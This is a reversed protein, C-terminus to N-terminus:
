ESAGWAPAVGDPKTAPKAKSKPAPKSTSEEGVEDLKVIEPILEVKNVLKRAQSETLEIVQNIKYNRTNPKCVRYKKTEVKAM